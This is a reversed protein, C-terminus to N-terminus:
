IKMHIFSSVMQLRGVAAPLTGDFSSTASSAPPSASALHPTASAPLADNSSSHRPPAAASAPPLSHPLESLRLHGAGSATRNPWLFPTQSYGGPIPRCVSPLPLRWFACLPPTWWPPLRASALIEMGESDRNKARKPLLAIEDGMSTFALTM